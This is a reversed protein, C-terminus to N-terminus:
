GKVSHIEVTFWDEILGGLLNFVAEELLRVLNRICEVDKSLELVLGFVPVCVVNVNGHVFDHIVRCNIEGICTSIQPIQVGQIVVIFRRKGM